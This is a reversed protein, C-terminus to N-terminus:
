QPLDVDKFSALLRGIRSNLFPYWCGGEKCWCALLRTVFRSVMCTLLWNACVTLSAVTWIITFNVLISLWAHCNDFLLLKTMVTKRMMTNGSTCGLISASLAIAFMMCTYAIRGGSPGERSARGGDVMNGWILGRRLWSRVWGCVYSSSSRICSSSSRERGEYWWM